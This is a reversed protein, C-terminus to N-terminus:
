LQNKSRNKDAIAWLILVFAIFRIIYVFSYVENEKNMILLVIREVALMWFAVAFISFLRDETKKWFRLFFLGIVWCAMMIAGSLFQNMQM